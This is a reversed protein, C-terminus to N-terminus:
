GGKEEAVTPPTRPAAGGSPAEDRGVQGGGVDRRDHISAGTTVDRTANRAIARDTVLLVEVTEAPGRLTTPFARCMLADSTDYLTM